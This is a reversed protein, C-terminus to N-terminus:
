GAACDRGAAPRGFWKAAGFAFAVMVPFGLVVMVVARQDIDPVAMLPALATGVNRTAMGVSLVIKQEHPLGFGFGYPLTTVIAFFAGQAVLALSGRIGMLDAGYVALSSAMLAITAVATIRKVWPELRAALRMSALRVVMGSVLPLLVVLLLPKAITWADISLGEVMLPVALPMFVITAVSILLM